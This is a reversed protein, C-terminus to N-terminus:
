HRIFLRTSFAHRSFIIVLLLTYAAAAEATHPIRVILPVNSVWSLVGLIIQLVRSYYRTQRSIFIRYFDVTLRTQSRAITINSYHSESIAAHCTQASHEVSRGLYGHVLWLM